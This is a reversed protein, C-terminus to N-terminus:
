FRCRFCIILAGTHEHKPRDAHARIRRDPPRAGSSNTVSRSGTLVNAFLAIGGNQEPIAASLCTALPEGSHIIQAPKPPSAHAAAPRSGNCESSPQLRSWPPSGGASAPCTGYYTMDYEAARARYYAIQEQWPMATTGSLM